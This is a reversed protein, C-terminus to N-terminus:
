GRKVKRTIARKVEDAAEECLLEFAMDNDAADELLEKTITIEVTLTELDVGM